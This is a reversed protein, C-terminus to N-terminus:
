ESLFALARLLASEYLEADDHGAQPVLELETPIGGQNLLNALQEVIEPTVTTDEEGLIMYARLGGGPYGSGATDALLGRWTHPDNTWPGDPALAVAGRVPLAWTLALWLAIEAGMGHGALVVRNTDVAYQENLSGFHRLIEAEAQQRDDWIYAGRWMAQSSQPVAVLWGNQAAPRWFELADKATVGNDHLAILLPLQEEGPGGRGPLRLTLLPYNELADASRYQGHAQVLEEFAPQGQLEQFAPTQRLVTEGFWINDDLAGRLAEAVRAPEGLRAALVSRWYHLMHAYEPFSGMQDEALQFALELEGEVYLRRLEAQLDEFTPYAM